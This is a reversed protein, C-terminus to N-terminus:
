IDDLAKTLDSTVSELVKCELYKEQLAKKIQRKIYRKYRRVKINKM